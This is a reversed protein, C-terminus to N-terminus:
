VGLWWAGAVLWLPIFLLGAISTSLVVRLATETDREYMRVLVIPFVAAPMAAQLMIVQKLDVSPVIALAITLMVAPLLVQRIGIAALIVNRSGSWNSEQLFDVIIAGSLLLGMPIACSGLKGIADLIPAPVLASGGFQRLGSALIVALFPPSLFAQRWKGGSSGSIIAIGISWLALDVGVNHLILDIVADPYSEEAIPLPIYGYNCIGACLAFARQKADSDLGIFRGLSRAFTFAVAFGLATMGFGFVPPLWAAAASEFQPSELIRHMFYAPLLVKATLNALSHDAQRTLWRQRRCIAGIGMVLFVALVSTIVPWLTQM